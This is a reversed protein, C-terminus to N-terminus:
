LIADIFLFDFLNFIISIFNLYLVVIFSYKIKFNFLLLIKSNNIEWYIIFIALFYAVNFFYQCITASIIDLPNM